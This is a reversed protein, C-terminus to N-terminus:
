EKARGSRLSWLGSISLILSFTSTVGVAILTWVWFLKGGSNAVRGGVLGSRMMHVLPMIMGLLSGLLTIIYGSRRGTLVVAGYLWIVMTVIGILNKFGGPEFGRVVDDSLHFSTLLISILSAIVLQDSRKM